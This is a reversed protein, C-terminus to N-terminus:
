MQDTPLYAVMMLSTTLMALSTRVMVLSTPSTISMTLSTISMIPTLDGGLGFPTVVMVLSTAVM